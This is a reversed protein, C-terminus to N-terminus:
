KIEQIGNTKHTEYHRHRYIQQVPSYGSSHFSLCVSANVRHLRQQNELVHVREQQELPELCCGLYAGSM